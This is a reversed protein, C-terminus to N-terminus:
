AAASTSLAVVNERHESSLYNEWAAMLSRRKELADGRRYAREVEDGVLHALAAEALESPYNTRDSVWDRFSSRFGHLTAEGGGASTLAKALSTNSIPTGEKAGKFIHGTQNEVAELVAIARPSLPVRHIRGAKMRTAPVTWVKTQLDIEEWTAGLVEGTRAATLILFELARSSTTSKARVAPMFAPIDAFPLAAHHGRKMRLEASPKPLLHEIHGKWRAPNEGDRLGRTKAYDLVSELRGRLRSATEHKERWHPELVSVIDTTTISDVPMKLLRACYAEGLTMKWQAEHKANRWTGEKTKLLSTVVDAFKMTAARGQREAVEMFPDGGRALIGRVEDAKSRAGALTVPATGSDFAGLGMERRRSNRIYIFVWSRTGTKSVNLYLGDGDGLKGPKDATKVQTATLKNRAM